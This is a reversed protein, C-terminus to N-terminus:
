YSRRSSGLTVRAGAIRLRSGPGKPHVHNRYVSLKSESKKVKLRTSSAPTMPFLTSHRSILTDESWINANKKASEGFKTRACTIPRVRLQMGLPRM